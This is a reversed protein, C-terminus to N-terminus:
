EGRLRTGGVCGVLIRGQGSSKTPKINPKIGAGRAVIRVEVNVRGDELIGHRYNCCDVSGYQQQENQTDHSSELELRKRNGQGHEDIDSLHTQIDIRCVITTCCESQQENVRM